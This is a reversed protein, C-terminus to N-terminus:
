LCVFVSPKKKSRFDIKIFFSQSRKGERKKSKRVKMKELFWCFLLNPHPSSVHCLCFMCCWRCHIHTLRVVSLSRDWLKELPEFLVPHLMGLNAKKTLTGVIKRKKCCFVDM